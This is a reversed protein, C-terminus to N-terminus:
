ARYQILSLHWHPLSRNMLVICGAFLPNNSLEMHNVCSFLFRSLMGTGYVLPVPLKSSTTLITQENVSLSTILIYIGGSNLQM